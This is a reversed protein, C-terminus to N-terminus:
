HKNILLFVALSHTFLNPRSKFDLDQYGILTFRLSYPAAGFSLTPSVPYGRTFGGVLPMARYSEWMRFDPTLWGTISGSEGQRSALLGFHGITFFTVPFIVPECCCEYYSLTRGTPTANYPFRRSISTTPQNPYAISKSNFDGPSNDVLDGFNWSKILVFTNLTPLLSNFFNLDDNDESTTASTALPTNIYDMICTESTKRRKSKTNSSYRIEAPTEINHYEAPEPIHGTGNSPTDDTATTIEQTREPLSLQTSNPKTVKQLNAQRISLSPITPSDTWVETGEKCDTEQLFFIERIAYPREVPLVDSNEFRSQAATKIRYTRTCIGRIAARPPLNYAFVHHGDCGSGEFVRECLSLRCGCRPSSERGCLSAQTRNSFTRNTEVPQQSVHRFSLVPSVHSFGDVLLMKRCSEGFDTLSGAPSQVRNAKTPPSCALRESVTAGRIQCKHIPSMLTLYVKQHIVPHRM